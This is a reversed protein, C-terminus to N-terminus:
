GAGAGRQTTAFTFIHQALHSSTKHTTEAALRGNRKQVTHQGVVQGLDQRVDALVVADVDDHAVEVRPKNAYAQPETGIM